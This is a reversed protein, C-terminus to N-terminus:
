VVQDHQLHAVLKEVVEQTSGSFMEGNGRAPPTFIKVVKTPSAPLGVSDETVGLHKLNWTTIAAKRANMKGRLSPLRPENIEKVM